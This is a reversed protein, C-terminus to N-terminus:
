AYNMLESLCATCKEGCTQCGTIESAKKNLLMMDGGKWQRRWSHSLFNFGGTRRGSEVVIGSNEYVVFVTQVYCQSLATFFGFPKFPMCSKV